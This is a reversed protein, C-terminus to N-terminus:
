PHRHRGRLGGRRGRRVGEVGRRRTQLNGESIYATSITRNQTVGVTLVPARLNLYGLLTRRQNESAVLTDRAFGRGLLTRLPTTFNFTNTTNNWAVARNNIARTIIELTIRTAAVRRFGARTLPDIFREEIQERGHITFPM